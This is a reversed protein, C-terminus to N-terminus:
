AIRNGSRLAELEDVRSKLERNLEHRNPACHAERHCNPCLAICNSVRDSVAIGLIHHIDLFGNYDRSEACGARECKQQARKLVVERVRSSRKYYRAEATVFEAEDRGLLSVDIGSSLDHNYEPSRAELCQVKPHDWITADIEPAGGDELYLTPSSGNIAPNAKRRGLRGANILEEYLIRQKNWISALASAPVLAGRLITSQERQIFLFHSIGQKTSRQAFASIEGAWKEPNGKGLLQVAAYTARRDVQPWCLKVRMSVKDGVRDEAKIIQARNRSQQSYSDEIIRYGNQRLFPSVSSRTEHEALYSESGRFERKPM